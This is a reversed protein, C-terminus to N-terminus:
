EGITMWYIQLPPLGKPPNCELIVSQGEMVEIPDIIEKPFKPVDACSLYFPWSVIFWYVNKCVLKAIAGDNPPLLLLVNGM